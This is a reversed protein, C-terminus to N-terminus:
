FFCVLVSSGLGFFLCGCVLCCFCCFVFVLVLLFSWFWMFGIVGVMFVWGAFFVWFSLRFVYVFGFFCFFLVSAVRLCLFVVCVSGLFVLSFFGFVFSGLLLFFVCVLGFSVGAVVVEFWPLMCLLGFCLSCWGLGAGGAVVVVVVDVGLGRVGGVWCLWAFLVVFLFGWLGSGGVSWVLGVFGLFWRCGLIVFRCVFFYALCGVFRLSFVCRLYTLGRYKLLYKRKILYWCLAGCLCWSPSVLSYSIPLLFSWLICFARIASWYCSKLSVLRLFCIAVSVRSGSYMASICENPRCGSGVALLRCFSYNFWGFGM